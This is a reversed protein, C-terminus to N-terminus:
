SGDEQKKNMKGSRYHREEDSAVNEKEVTRETMMLIIMMMTMTMMTM